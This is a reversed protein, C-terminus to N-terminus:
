SYMYLTWYFSKFCVPIFSSILKLISGKLKQLFNVSFHIGGLYKAALLSQLKIMCNDCLLKYISFRM